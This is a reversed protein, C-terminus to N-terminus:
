TIRSLVCLKTPRHQKWHKMSNHHQLLLSVPIFFFFDPTSSIIYCFFFHLRVFSFVATSKDLDDSPNKHVTCTDVQSGKSNGKGHMSVADNGTLLMSFWNVGERRREWRVSVQPCKLVAFTVWLAILSPTPRQLGCLQWKLALHIWVEWCCDCKWKTVVTRRCARKTLQQCM